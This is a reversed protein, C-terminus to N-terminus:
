VTVYRIDSEAISGLRRSAWLDSSYETDQNARSEATGYYGRIDRSLYEFDSRSFYGSEYSGSCYTKGNDQNLIEYSGEVHIVASSFPIRARLKEYFIKADIPCLETTTYEFTWKKIEEKVSKSSGTWRSPCVSQRSSNKYKEVIEASGKSAYKAFYAAVSKEIIQLNWQWNEPLNRHTFKSHKAFLDIGNADGIEILLQYWIDKVELSIEEALTKDESAISWHQHL